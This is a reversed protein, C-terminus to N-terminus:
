AAVAVEIHPPPITLDARLRAAFAPDPAALTGAQHLMPRALGMNMVVVGSRGARLWSFPDPHITLPGWQTAFVQEEGLMGVRGYWPVLFGSPGSRWAVLDALEGGADFAPLIMAGRAGEEGVDRAFQFRDGDVVVQACRPPGLVAQWTSMLDRYSVGEALVGDVMRQPLPHCKIFADLCELARDDRMDQADIEALNDLTWHAEAFLM